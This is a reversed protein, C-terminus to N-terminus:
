EKSEQIGCFDPPRTALKLFREKPSYITGSEGEEDCIDNESVVIVDPKHESVHDQRRQRIVMPDHVQFCVASGGASRVDEIDLKELFLLATNAATVFQPYLGFWDAEQASNSFLDVLRGRRMVTSGLLLGALVALSRFTRVRYASGVTCGGM